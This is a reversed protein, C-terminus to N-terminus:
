VLLMFLQDFLLLFSFSAAAAAGVSMFGNFTICFVVVSPLIPLRDQVEGAQKGVGEEVVDEDEETAEGSAASGAPMLVNLSTLM